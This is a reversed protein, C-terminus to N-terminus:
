QFRIPVLSGAFLRNSQENLRAVLESRSPLGGREHLQVVARDQVQRTLQERMSRNQIYDAILNLATIKSTLRISKMDVAIEILKPEPLRVTIPISRLDIDAPTIHGVDIGCYVRVIATLLGERRGLLVTNDNLELYVQEVLRDTVLLQVSESRLIDLVTRMEPIRPTGPKPMLWVAAMVVLLAAVFLVPRLVRGHSTTVSLDRAASDFCCHCDPYAV